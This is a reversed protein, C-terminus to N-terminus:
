NFIISVVANYDFYFFFFASVFLLYTLTKITDPVMQTSIFRAVNQHKYSMCLSVLINCPAHIPWNLFCLEAM